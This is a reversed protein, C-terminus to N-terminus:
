APFRTLLDAAVAPPVLEEPIALSPQAFQRTSVVFVTRSHTVSTIGSAHISTTTPGVSLTVRDISFETTLPTGAPAYRAWVASVRRHGLWPALVALAVLVFGSIIITTSSSDPDLAVFVAGIAVFLLGFGGIAAVQRILQRRRGLTLASAVRSPLDPGAIMHARIFGPTPPQQAATDFRPVPPLTDPDSPPVTM